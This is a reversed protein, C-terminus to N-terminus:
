CQRNNRRPLHGPFYGNPINQNIPIMKQDKGNTIWCYKVKRKRNETKILGPVFGEPCEFAFINIKGNNFAKRGKFKKAREDYM